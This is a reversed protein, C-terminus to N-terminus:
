FLKKLQDFISNISILSGSDETVQKEDKAIISTPPSAWKQEKNENQKKVDNNSYNDSLNHSPDYGKQNNVTPNFGMDFGFKPNNNM